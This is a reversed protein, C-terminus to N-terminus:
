EFQVTHSDIPTSGVVRYIFLISSEGAASHFPVSLVQFLADLTLNPSDLMSCDNLLLSSPITNGFQSPCVTRSPDSHSLPAATM